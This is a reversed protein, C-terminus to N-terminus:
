LITDPKIKRDLLFQRLRTLLQSANWDMPNDTLILELGICINKIEGTSFSPFGAAIRNQLANAREFSVETMPYEKLREIARIMLLGEQLSFVEDSM